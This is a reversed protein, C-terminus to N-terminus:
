DMHGEQLKERRWYPGVKSDLTCPSSLRGASTELCAKGDGFRSRSCFSSHPCQAVLVVCKPVTGKETLGRDMQRDM